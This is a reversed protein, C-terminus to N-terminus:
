GRRVSAGGDVPIAVGTIFKAEESALFLACYAVDWANGMKGLPVKADREAIVQEPEIEVVEFPDIVRKAVRSAVLKETLDGIAQFVGGGIGVDDGPQATIFERHQEFAVRLILQDLGHFRHALAEVPGVIDPAGDNMAARTDADTDDLLVIHLDLRQQLMCVQSEILGLFRALACPTDEALVEFVPRPCALANLEVEVFRELVILKAQEELGLQICLGVLDDTRFGENAPLMWRPAQDARIVEDLMSFVAANDGSQAVPRKAFGQPGGAPHRIIHADRHIDRRQLNM